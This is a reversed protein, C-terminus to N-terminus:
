IIYCWKVVMVIKVATELYVQASIGRLEEKVLVVM